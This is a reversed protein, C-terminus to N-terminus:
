GKPPRAEKPSHYEDPAESSDEAAQTDIAADPKETGATMPNLNRLIERVSEIYIILEKLEGKTLGGAPPPNPGDFPLGVLKRIQRILLERSPKYRPM